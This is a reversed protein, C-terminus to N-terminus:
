AAEEAKGDITPAVPEPEPQDRGNQPLYFRVAPEDGGSADDAYNGPATDKPVQWLPGGHRDLWYRAAAINGGLAERVVVNGIRATVHARGEKIEKRFHKRLTHPHIRITAAMVDHKVGNAAMVMVTYRQDPTPVFEPLPGTGVGRKEGRMQRRAPHDEDGPPPAIDDSPLARQRPKTQPKQM